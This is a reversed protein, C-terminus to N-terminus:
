IYLLKIFTQLLIHTEPNNAATETSAASATERSAAPCSTHDSTRCWFRARENSFAVTSLCLLLALAYLYKRKM